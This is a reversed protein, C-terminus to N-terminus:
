CTRSYNKPWLARLTAVEKILKRLELRLTKLNEVEKATREFEARTARLADWIEGDSSTVVTQRAHIQAMTRRLLELKEHYTMDDWSKTM